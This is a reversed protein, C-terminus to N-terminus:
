HLHHCNQLQPLPDATNSIYHMYLYLPFMLSGECPLIYLFAASFM